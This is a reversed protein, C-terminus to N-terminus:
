DILTSCEQQLVVSTEEFRKELHAKTDHIAVNRVWDVEKKHAKVIKDITKRFVQQDFDLRHKDPLTFNTNQLLENYYKLLASPESKKGMLSEDIHKSLDGHSIKLMRRVHDMVLKFTKDFKVMRELVISEALREPKVKYPKDDFKGLEVEIESDVELKNAGTDGRTAIDELAVRQQGSM